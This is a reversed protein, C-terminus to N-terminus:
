ASIRIAKFRYMQLGASRAKHHECVRGAISQGGKFDGAVPRHHLLVLQGALLGCEGVLNGRQADYGLAAIAENQGGGGAIM